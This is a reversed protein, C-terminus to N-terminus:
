QQPPVTTSALTKARSPLKAFMKNAEEVGSTKARQVWANFEAEPVARLSIPMFAHDKGCLESCQGYYVGPKEIMFWDENL